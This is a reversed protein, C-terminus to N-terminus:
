SFDVFSIPPTQVFALYEVSTRVNFCLITCPQPGELMCQLVMTRMTLKM